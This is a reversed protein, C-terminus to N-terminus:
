NEGTNEFLRRYYPINEYAYELLKLLKQWQLKRLKEAPWSQIKNLESLYALTM